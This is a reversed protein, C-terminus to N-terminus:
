GPRWGRGYSRRIGGRRSTGFNPFRFIRWGGSLVSHRPCIRLRRGASERAALVFEPADPESVWEEVCRDMLGALALGVLAEIVTEGTALSHALKYGTELKDRAAAWDHKQIDFRIELALAGAMQRVKGLSPFLAQFGQQRIAAGTGWDVSEMRAGERLLKLSMSFKERIGKLQADNDKLEALPADNRAADLLTVEDPNLQPMQSMADLFRLAGNGKETEEPGPLLGYALRLSGM